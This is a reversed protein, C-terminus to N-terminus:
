ETKKWLYVFHWYSVYLIHRVVYHVNYIINWVIYGYLTYFKWIGSVYYFAVKLFGRIFTFIRFFFWFQTYYSKFLYLINTWRNKVKCTKFLYFGFINFLHVHSQIQGTMWEHWLQVLDFTWLICVKTYKMKKVKKYTFCCNYCCCFLLVVVVLVVIFWGTLKENMWYNMRDNIKDSKEIQCVHHM